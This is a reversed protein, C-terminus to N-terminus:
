VFLYFRRTTIRSVPISLPLAFTPRIVVHSRRYHWQSQLSKGGVTGHVGAGFFTIDATLFPEFSRHPRYPLVM